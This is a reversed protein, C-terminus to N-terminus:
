DLPNDDPLWLEKAGYEAMWPALAEFTPELAWLKETPEYEVRPPIEDYSRRTLFGVEVLEDLRRSLTNPSVDLADELESYRIPPEQVIVFEALADLTHASGLLTFLEAAEMGDGPEVDTM